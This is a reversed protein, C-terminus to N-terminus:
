ASVADAITEIAMFFTKSGIPCEIFEYTKWFTAADDDMAHVLLARFGVIQSASVVRTFADQLLAPGLGRGQYSRDCALRGLILVPIQNPLGQQRKMKSPLAKREVSGTSLCYYGVVTVGHECLVYTRATKGESELASNRLWDDLAPKGSNFRSVDHRSTLPAPATLGGANLAPHKTIEAL